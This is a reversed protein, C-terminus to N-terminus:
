ARWPRSRNQVAKESLIKKAISVNDRVQWDFMGACVFDVGNEFAFKFGESPHVAGAALVKYGIWPKKVNKMFNITEQPYLEWMCDNDDPEFSDVLFPRKDEEKIVGWYTDPHITKFYYDCDIGAKECEMPVRKDHGGIGAFMGNKRVCDVFEQIMDLRKVKVWRDGRCGLLHAAVCGQEAAEEVSKKIDEKTVSITGDTYKDDSWDYDGPDLQAICKMTGGCEKKYKNVMYPDGINTTIGNEECLRLTEMIKEETFYRKMVESVYKLNRAHAGGAFLNSGIIVRSIEVEGIKGKALGNIPQQKDKNSTENEAAMAQHELLAREEFSLLGAAGTAIMSKKLFSRRNLNGAM